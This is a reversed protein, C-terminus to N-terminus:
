SKFTITHERLFLAYFEFEYTISNERLEGKKISVPQNKAGSEEYLEQQVLPDFEKLTKRYMNKETLAIMSLLIDSLGVNALTAFLYSM